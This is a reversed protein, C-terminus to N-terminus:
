TARFRLPHAHSGCRMFGLGHWLTTARHRLLAVRLFESLTDLTTRLSLVLLLVKFSCRETWILMIAFSIFSLTWGWVKLLVSLTRFTLDTLVSRNTWPWLLKPGGGRVDDIRKTAAWTASAAEKGPIGGFLEPPGHQKLYENLYKAYRKTWCRYLVSMVTLPRLEDTGNAKPILCVRAERFFQPIFGEDCRNFLEALRVISDYHLSSLWDATCGDLGPAGKPLFELIHQPRWPPPKVFRPASSYAGLPIPPRAIQAPSALQVVGQDPTGTLRSSYSGSRNFLRIGCNWRQAFEAAAGDSRDDAGLPFDM